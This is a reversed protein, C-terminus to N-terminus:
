RFDWERKVTDYFMHLSCIAKNMEQYAVYKAQKDQQEEKLIQKLSNDYVYEETM